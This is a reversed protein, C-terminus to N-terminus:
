APVPMGVVDRHACAGVGGDGRHGFAVPGSKIVEGYVLREGLEVPLRHAKSTVVMDKWQLWLVRDVDHDLEVRVLHHHLHAGDITVAALELIPADRNAVMRMEQLLAVAM